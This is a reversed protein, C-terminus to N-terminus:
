VIIDQEHDDVGVSKRLTKKGHESRLLLRNQQSDGNFNVKGDKLDSLLIKTIRKGSRLNIICKLTDESLPVDVGFSMGIQDMGLLIEVNSPLEEVVYSPVAISEGGFGINLVAVDRIAETKKFLGRFTIPIKTRFTVLKYNDIIRRTVLSTSSGTDIM